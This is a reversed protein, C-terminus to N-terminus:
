WAGLAVLFGTALGLVVSLACFIVEERVPHIEFNFSPVVKTSAISPRARGVAATPPSSRRSPPPRRRATLLPAQRRIPRVLRALRKPAAFLLRVLAAFGAVLFATRAEVPPRPPARRPGQEASKGRVGVRPFGTPRLETAPERASRPASAGDVREWVGLRDGALTFAGLLLAAV